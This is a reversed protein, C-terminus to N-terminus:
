KNLIDKYEKNFDIKESNEKLKRRSSEGRFLGLNNDNNQNNQKKYLDLVDNLKSVNKRSSIAKEIEKPNEKKEKLYKRKIEVRKRPRLVIELFSFDLGFLELAKYFLDTEEKTWKKTHDIKLFSLSSINEENSIFITEKPQNNNNHEENYKKNILGVDPKEITWQGNVMVIKSKIKKMYENKENEDNKPLNINKSLNKKQLDKKRHINKQKNTTDGTLQIEELNNKNKILELLTPKNDKKTKITMGRKSTNNNKLSVEGGNIILNQDNKKIKMIEEEKEEKKEEEKKGEEKKEEEEEKEKKEEKEEEKEEEEEEEKEEEEEEEKEKETEEEEEESSNQKKHIKKFKKIKKEKSNKKINKNLKKNTEKQKEKIKEKHKKKISLIKKKNSLSINKYNTKQLLNKKLEEIQNKNEEKSKISSKSNKKIKKVM